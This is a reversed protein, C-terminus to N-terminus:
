GSIRMSSSRVEGIGGTITCGEISFDVEPRPFPVNGAALIVASRGKGTADITTVSPGACIVHINPFIFLREPYRGAAVQITAGSISGATIRSDADNIAAQITPYPAAQTGCGTTCTSHVDVFLTTTGAAVVLRAVFVLVLLAAGGAIMRLARVCPDARM